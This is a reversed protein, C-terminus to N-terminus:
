TSGGLKLAPGAAGFTESNLNLLVSMPFTVANLKTTTAILMSSVSILKQSAAGSRPYQDYSRVVASDVGGGVVVAGATTFGTIPLGTIAGFFAVAPLGSVTVNM